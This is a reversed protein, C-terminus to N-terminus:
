RSAAGQHRPTATGMRAQWAADLAAFVLRAVQMREHVFGEDKPLVAAVLAQAKAHIKPGDEAVEDDAPMEDWPIWPYAVYLEEVIGWFEGALAEREREAQRAVVADKARSPRPPRSEPPPAQSTSRTIHEALQQAVQRPSRDREARDRALAKILQPTTRGYMAYAYGMPPQAALDKLSQVPVDLYQALQEQARAQPTPATTPFQALEAQLRAEEQVRQRIKWVYVHSVGLERALQRDGRQAIEPDALLRELIRGWDGHQYRLGRRVNAFCAFVMADRTSGQHVQCPVTERKAQRAAELRHFGDAVYYSGQSEFVDLPPFPEEGPEAATYIEAYTTITPSELRERPQIEDDVQLDACPLM